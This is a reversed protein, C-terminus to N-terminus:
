AYYSVNLIGGAATQIFKIKGLDGTYEFEDGVELPMGVTATPDTGDDRWRLTQAEAQLIAIRAKINGSSPVTLGTAAALTATPIQQYGVPLLNGQRM